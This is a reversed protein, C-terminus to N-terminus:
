FDPGFRKGLCQGICTEAFVLHFFEVVEHAALADFFDLGLHMAFVRSGGEGFDFVQECRKGSCAVAFAHVQVEANNAAEGVVGADHEFHKVLAFGHAGDGASATVVAEGFLETAFADGSDSEAHAVHHEGVQKGLM